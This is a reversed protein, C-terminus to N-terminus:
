KNNKFSLKKHREKGTSSHIPLFEKEFRELIRKSKNQSSINTNTNKKLSKSPPIPPSLPPISSIIKKKIKKKTDTKLNKKEIKVKNKNTNTNKKTIKTKKKNKSDLKKMLIDIKKELFINQDNLNSNVAIKIPSPPSPSRSIDENTFDSFHCYDSSIGNKFM